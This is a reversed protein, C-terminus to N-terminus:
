GTADARRLLLFDRIGSLRHMRQDRPPFWRNGTEIPVIEPHDVPYTGGEHEVTGTGAALVNRVWDASSGYPLAIAFGDETAVAVVPTRHTAGSRRGVHQVVSAYAGPRGATRLQRPNVFRRNMRRVATLVPGLKLRMGAALVAVAAAAVGAVWAIGALVASETGRGRVDQGM